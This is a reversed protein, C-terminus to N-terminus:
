GSTDKGCGRRYLQTMSGVGMGSDIEAAIAAL